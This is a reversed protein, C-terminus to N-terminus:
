RCMFSPDILLGKYVLTVLVTGPLIPNSSSREFLTTYPPVIDDPSFATEGVYSYTLYAERFSVTIFTAANEQVVASVEVPFPLDFAGDVEVFVGRLRNWGDVEVCRFMKRLEPIEYSPREEEEPVKANRILERRRILDAHFAAARLAEEHAAVSQRERAALEADLYAITMAYIRRCEDDFWFCKDHHYLAARRLLRLNKSTKLRALYKRAAATHENRATAIRREIDIIENRMRDEVITKRLSVSKEAAVLTTAVVAVAFFFSRSFKKM